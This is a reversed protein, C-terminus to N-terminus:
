IFGDADEFMWDEDAVYVKDKRVQPERESTGEYGKWEEDESDIAPNKTFPKAPSDWNETEDLEIRNFTETSETEEDDSYLSSSTNNTICGSSNFSERRKPVPGDYRNSTNKYNKRLTGKKMAYSEYQTFDATNLYNSELDISEIKESNFSVEELINNYLDLVRLSPMSSFDPVTDIYNSQALIVALGELKGIVAPIAVLVNHSVDLVELNVMFEMGDSLWSISNNNIHLETLTELWAIGEPFISLSLHNMKLVKLQQWKPRVFLDDVEHLRNVTNKHKNSIDLYELKGFCKLLGYDSDRLHCNRLKLKRLQMINLNYSNKYYKYHDAKNSSFNLEELNTCRFILLWEPLSKLENNNLKLKRIHRLCEPEMDFHDIKNHSLDLSELYRLSSYLCAPVKVFKNHSLGLHKLNPILWPIPLDRLNCYALDLFTIENMNLKNCIPGDIINGFFEKVTVTGCEETKESNKPRIGISETGNRFIQLEGSLKEYGM